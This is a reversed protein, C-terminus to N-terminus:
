RRNTRAAIRDGFVVKAGDRRLDVPLDLPMEPSLM